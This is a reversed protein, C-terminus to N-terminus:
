SGNAIDFSSPSGQTNLSVRRYGNYRGRYGLHFWIHALYNTTLSWSGGEVFIAMQERFGAGNAIKQRVGAVSTAPYQASTGFQLFSVTGNTADSVTAPYHWLGVTSLPSSKLGATPIFTTDTLTVTQEGTNCCGGPGPALVTGFQTGPFADLHIMRVGYKTQYNYLTTWQAATIASAWGTTGGMDYTVLGVVIILGYNGASNAGTITELAPLAAGTQPITKVTIPVGYGQLVGLAQDADGATTTCLILASQYLTNAASIFSVFLSLFVLITRGAVM